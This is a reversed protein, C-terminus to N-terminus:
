SRYGAQYQYRAYSHVGAEHTWDAGMTWHSNFAHGVGASAHLAYPTKYAPDIVAGAGGSASGPLCGSDTPGICPGALENVAQLATVWGNQALDNYFLGFGARIVTSRDAGLAYAIGLRPALAKRYDHPPGWNRFLPIQLAQLTLLAPNDWQSRGSATFLGFTTDYRLGFNVTLHPAARWSDQAYLGLRQVNQAFSGNGAPTSSCTTGDTVTLTATPTCNLDVAFQRTNSLYDTPNQAFVTLNEANGPLAGSLVPEHIFDVGFKTTHRGTTHIVDYRLQYKEQDRQVPFATIPTVFQNDGFTEFGSITQSTSSFPFALAFGLNSNRSETLRLGSAGFTFSGVWSPGFIFQQGLVLNMYNSHSTAGTSALTAQQVFANDTTYNDTAARLFWQSRASQAWDFRLTGLYDRFPVPVNNPVAISSVGPILGKAALSALAQFQTLSDPSYAISADEHVGEFSAFFWLKDKVIPGGLTGIYNQRSFPQKPLPSPNEIPYRADFAAAREYFAGEGHWRNTGRKTTIVVSGGVTRGTEADQQSTQVAFEQIADPSFNQLFGGIYDDSNDGGDVSLVDNLGSSGGFSVATIRAKTPDSPEVPVTGPVLYAINAFSRHALPIAQLDRATVVGGHVASSSDIPQTVISSAQAPVELRQQAAAPKLTVSIERASAVTVSVTSRAEAFGSARVTVAYAGPMLDSFRFEGRGDSQTQRELSSEAAQLRIEASQVRGGSSDTVTGALSGRFDQARSVGPMACLALVVAIGATRSTSEALRHLHGAHRPKM